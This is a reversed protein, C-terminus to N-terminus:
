ALGLSRLLVGSVSFLSSDMYDLLCMGRLRLYVIRNNILVHEMVDLICLVSGLVGGVYDLLCSSIDDMVGGICMYAVHMRVGSVWEFVVM